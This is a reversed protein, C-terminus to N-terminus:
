LKCSVVWGSALERRALWFSSVLFWGEGLSRGALWFSSVLRRWALFWFGSVLFWFSSVLVEGVGEGVWEGVTM